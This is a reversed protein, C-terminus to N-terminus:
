LLARILYNAFNRFGFPARFSRSASCNTGPDDSPLPAPLQKVMGM